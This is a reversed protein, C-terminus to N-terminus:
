VLLTAWPYKEELCLRKQLALSCLQDVSRSDPIEFVQDFIWFRTSLHM